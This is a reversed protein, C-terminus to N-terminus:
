GHISPYLRKLKIRAEENTFQWNIKRSKNNMQRQWARVEQKIKKITSMNWEKKCFGSALAIGYLEIFKRKFISLSLNCLFTLEDLTINSGIHSEVLKKIEIETISIDAIKLQGMEEPYHYCLYLLLEEFKVQQLTAPMEKENESM